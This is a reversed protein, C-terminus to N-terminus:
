RHIVSRVAQVLGRRVKSENMTTRTPCVTGEPGGCGSMEAWGAQEALKVALKAKDSLRTEDDVGETEEDGIYLNHLLQRNPCVEGTTPCSLDFREIM